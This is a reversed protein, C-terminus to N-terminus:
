PTKPPQWDMVWASNMGLVPDTTIKQRTADASARDNGGNAGVLVRVGKSTRSTTVNYGKARLKSVMADANAQSAALAVQVVWGRTPKATTAKPAASSSPATKATSNLNATQTSAQTSTPKYSDGELIRRAEEADARKKADIDARRKAEADAKQKAALQSAELAKRKQEEAQLKELTAQRKAELAKIEDALRKKEAMAKQELAKREAETKRKQELVAKQQAALRQIEAQRQAQLAQQQPTPSNNTAAPQATAAKPPVPQATTTTANTTSNLEPPINDSSQQESLKRAQIAANEMAAKDAAAAEAQQQLRLFEAAKAEQEAVAKERTLRQQELLRQETAVDVSLSQVAQADAKDEPTANPQIVTPLSPLEFGNQHLEEKGKILLATLLTGGCFLVIGGMWRQTNNMAM